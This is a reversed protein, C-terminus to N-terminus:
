GDRARKDMEDVFLQMMTNFRLESKHLDDIARLAMMPHILELPAQTEKNCKHLSDLAYYEAGSIVMEITAKMADFKISRDLNSDIMITLGALAKIILKQTVSSKEFMDQLKIDPATQQERTADNM